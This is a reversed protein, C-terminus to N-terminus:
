DGGSPPDGLGQSWRGRGRGRWEEAFEQVRERMAEAEAVQEPTLVQRVDSHIKARLVALDAEVAAAQEAAERIATEDFLDSQIRGRLVLRAVRMTEFLGEAEERYSERIAQIEARQGDSLDLREAIKGAIFGRGCPGDAGPGFGGGFGHGPGRPAALLSAPIAALLLALTSYLLTKFMKKM